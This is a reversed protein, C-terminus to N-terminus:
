GKLVFKAQIRIQAPAIAGGSDPVQAKLMGGGLFMQRRPFTLNLYSSVFNVSELPRAKM